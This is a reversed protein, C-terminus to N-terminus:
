KKEKEKFNGLIKEALKLNKFIKTESVIKQSM